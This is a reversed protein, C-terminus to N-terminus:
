LGKSFPGRRHIGYGFTEKTANEGSELLIMEADVNPCTQLQFVSVPTRTDPGENRCVSPARATTNVGLVVYEATEGSPFHITATASVVQLITLTQSEFIPFSTTEKSPCVSSTLEMVKEGSLLRIRVDESSLVM